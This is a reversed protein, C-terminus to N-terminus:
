LSGSVAEMPGITRPSPRCLGDITGAVDTLAVGANWEASGTAPAAGALSAAPDDPINLYGSPMGSIGGTEAVPLTPMSASPNDSAYWLNNSFTFTAPSTGAGENVATSLSGAAFVFTNNIIRGNAAPEFTYGAQTPTEQLIRVHWRQMGRVFNHAALCDICGVFAFPTATNNMATIVNNFVRIRRAEANTATTSLPPRFLTLDTSGGLNVARGGTIRMRSDRVDVDTSGGKAQVATAMAGEFVCRAIISRHCGVHDIGSGGPGCREIRSDYVFLDNVGSVKLCDNNGTGAIDHIHVNQVVVFQAGTPDTFDGGDDINIGNASQGTVELDHVVVYAPRSLHLAEGGGSIVPLPQGPEGGLWIPADATGRLNSVYQATIHMGPKLRIATGPTAASAADEITQFPNTASGDGGTVAADVYLVRMPTKGAAFTAPAACAAQSGPADIAADGDGGGGDIAPTPDGGCAVLLGVAILGRMRSRYGSVVFM